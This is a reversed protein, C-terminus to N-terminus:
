VKFDGLIKQLAEASASLHKVSQQVELISSLQEESSSAVTNYNQAVEHSISVNNNIMQEIEKMHNALSEISSFNEEIQHAVTKTSNVINEFTENVENTREMGIRVNEIGIDMTLNTKETDRQIEQIIDSIQRASEGSQEALKKVEDAVVKFGQGHEGARAAEISANLSLLNTQTAISTIMESIQGIEKSRAELNKIMTSSEHVSQQIFDMQENLNHLSKSGDLANQSAATAGSSAISSIDSITLVNKGIDEIYTLSKGYSDMQNESLAAAEQITSTIEKSVVSMDDFQERLLTSSHNVEDGKHLVGSVLGQLNDLMLNFKTSMEGFEDRTTVVIRTTLDGESSALVDLKENIADFPKLMKKILFFLLISAFVVTGVGVLVFFMLLTNAKAFAESKPVMIFIGWDVKNAKSYYIFHDENNVVGEMMGAEENMTKKLVDVFLEEGLDAVNSELILDKDQHAVITGDGSFVVAQGTQGVKVRSIMELLDDMYYGGNMVGIINGAEDHVPAVALAIPKGDRASPYPGITAIEGSLGRQTHEDDKIPVTLGGPLHVFGEADIFAFATETNPLAPEIRNNFELIAEINQEKVIDLEAVSQQLNQKGEAWLDINNTIAELQGNAQTTFNDVMLNKTLQYGFYSVISLSGVLLVTVM